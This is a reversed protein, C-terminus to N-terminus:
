LFNEEFASTTSKAGKVKKVSAEVSCVFLYVFLSLCIFMFYCSVNRDIPPAEKRPEKDDNTFIVEALDSMLDLDLKQPQQQQNRKAAEELSPPEFKEYKLM